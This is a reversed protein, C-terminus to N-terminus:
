VFCGYITKCCKYVAGPLPWNTSVDRLDGYNQGDAEVAWVAGVEQVPGLNCFSPQDKKWLSSPVETGTNYNTWGAKLSECPDMIEANRSSLRRARAATDYGRASNDFDLGEMWNEVRCSGKSLRGSMGSRSIEVGVGNTSTLDNGVLGYCKDAEMQFTLRNKHVATYAAKAPPIVSQIRILEEFSTIPALVCGELEPYLLKSCSKQSRKDHGNPHRKEVKHKRDECHSPASFAKQFTTGSRGFDKYVYISRENEGSCDICKQDERPADEYFSARKVGCGGCIDTLESLIDCVTANVAGSVAGMFLGGCTIRTTDSGLIRLSKYPDQFAHDPNECIKCDENNGITNNEIGDDTEDADADLFPQFTSCGCIAGFFPQLFTCAEEDISDRGARTDWLLAGCTKTITQDRKNILSIAKEPRALTGIPCLDCTKASKESLSVFEEITITGAKGRSPTVGIHSTTPEM